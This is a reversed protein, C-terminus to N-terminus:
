KAPKVDEIRDFALGSSGEGRGTTKRVGLWTFVKGGYWRTRQFSQSVQVGARPVEEEHVFYPQRKPKAELGERMLNTRPQVRAPKNEGKLLRLMAARQLRKRGALAGRGRHFASRASGPGSFIREGIVHYECCCTKSYKPQTLKDPSTLVKEPMGNWLDPWLVHANTLVVNLGGPVTTAFWGLTRGEEYTKTFIAVGGTLPRHENEDRIEVFGENPKLNYVKLVDTPFGQSQAPVRQEAPVEGPSKKEWVYVRFCIQDTLEGGIEKVGIGVGVV